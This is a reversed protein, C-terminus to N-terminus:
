FRIVEIKYAWYTVSTVAPSTRNNLRLALSATGEGTLFAKGGTVAGAPFNTADSNFVAHQLVEGEIVWFGTTDNFWICASWSKLLRSQTTIVEPNPIYQGTVTVVVYHYVNSSQTFFNALDIDLTTIGNDQYANGAVTTVVTGSGSVWFENAVVLDNTYTRQAVALGGKVVLAGTTLSLSNTNSTVVLNSNTNTGIKTNAYTYFRGINAQIAQDNSMASNNVNNIFTQQSQANAFLTGIDNAVTILNSRIGSM